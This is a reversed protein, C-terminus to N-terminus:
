PSELLIDILEILHSPQLDYMGLRDRLRILREERWRRELIRKADQLGVGHEERYAKVEDVTPKGM